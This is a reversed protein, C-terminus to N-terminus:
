PWRSEKFGKYFTMASFKLRRKRQGLSMMENIRNFEPFVDLLRCPFSLDGDAAPM